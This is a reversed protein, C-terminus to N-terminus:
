KCKEKYWFAATKSLTARLLSDPVKAYQEETSLRWGEENLTDQVVWKVFDATHKIGIHGGRIERIYELGQELRRGDRPCAFEVFQTLKLNLRTQISCRMQAVNPLVVMSHDYVRCSKTKFNYLTSVLSPHVLTWVIGECSRSGRFSSGVISSFCIPLANAVQTTYENMEREVRTREFIDDFDNITVQFLTGTKALNFIQHGPLEIDKYSRMDGVWEGDIRINFIAYFIPLKELAVGKQIDGGAYEGAILLEEYTKTGGRIDLIKQVLTELPRSHFFEYAGHM